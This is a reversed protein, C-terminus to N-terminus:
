VAPLWTYYNNLAGDYYISTAQGFTLTISASGNILSGTPASIVLSASADTNKIDMLWGNFIAGPENDASSILAPLTDAMAVTANSRNILQGGNQYNYVVNTGVVNTAPRWKYQYLPQYSQAGTNYITMQIIELQLFLLINTLPPQETILAM